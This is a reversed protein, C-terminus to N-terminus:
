ETPTPIGKNTFYTYVNQSIGAIRDNALNRSDSESLIVLIYDGNPAYVVGADHTFQDLEGTKHAISIGDPIYKPIKENLRQRKLLGIMEGTYKPDSLQGKYLKEFFLAIDSATTIPAKGKIGVKSESFGNQELFLSINFLKVRDTLLLAAYNDSVTIMQELADHISLTIKGSTKEASDPDIYFTKNLQAVDESVIDREHLKGQKIQEFVTAMVWLKYLSGSEFQRHSNSYYDEDTKVNKVVIGYTGTAGTLADQITAGLPVSSIESSTPTPTISPLVPPITTISITTVKKQATKSTKLMRSIIFQLCILIIMMWILLKVLRKLRNRKARKKREMM